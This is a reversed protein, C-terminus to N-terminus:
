GDSGETLLKIEGEEAEVEKMVQGYIGIRIDIAERSQLEVTQKPRGFRYELLLKASLVDGQKARRVQAQLIAEWDLPSVTLDFLDHLIVKALKPTIPPHHGFEVKKKM